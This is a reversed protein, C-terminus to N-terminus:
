FHGTVFLGGTSQGVVPVVRVSVPPSESRSTPILLYVLTGALAAGGVVFAGVSLNTFTDVESLANDLEDCQTGRPPQEPCGAPSAMMLQAQLTEKDSRKGAALATFVIGGGIGLAGLGFGAALVPISKGSGEGPLPRPQNRSSDAGPLKLDLSVSRASGATLDLIEVADSMGPSRAVVRRRGPDIFLPEALPARGVAIEDILVEAGAPVVKVTLTAIKATATKLFAEARERREPPANRVYYTAHEAAERYRGLRLECDTLNGAIQWQKKLRWAALFAVRAEQWKEDKYLAVGELYLAGAQDELAKTEAASEPPDGARAPRPAFAALACLLCSVLARHTRRM